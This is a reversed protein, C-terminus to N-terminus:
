CECECCTKFVNLDFLASVATLNGEIIDRVSGNQQEIGFIPFYDRTINVFECDRKMQENIATEWAALWKRLIKTRKDLTEQSIWASRDVDAIFFLSVSRWTSYVNSLKNTSVEESSRSPFELWLFPVKDAYDNSYMIWESSTKMQSGVFFVTDPITFSTGVTPNALTVTNGNISVIKNSVNGTMIVHNFLPLWRVDCFEIETTSIYTKPKITRDILSFSKQLIEDIFYM